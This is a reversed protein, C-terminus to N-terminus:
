VVAADGAFLLCCVVGVGVVVLVLWCPYCGCCWAVCFVNFLCCAIAVAVDAFLLLVRRVVVVGFSPQCYDCCSM